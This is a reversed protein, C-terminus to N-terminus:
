RSVPKSNNFLEECEADTEAIEEPTLVSYDAYFEGVRPTNPPTNTTPRMVFGPVVFGIAREAMAAFDMHWEEAPAKAPHDSPDIKKLLPM